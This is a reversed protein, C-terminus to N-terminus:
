RTLEGLLAVLPGTAAMIQERAVPHWEDGLVHPDPIDDPHPTETRRRRRGAMGPEVPVPAMGRAADLEAVLWETRGVTPLPAVFRRPDGEPYQGPARAAAVMGASLLWQSLRGAQKITFTRQRAQPDIEVVGAQHERAATLVLDAWEVAEPSLPASRHSPVTCGPAGVVARTGASASAVGPVAAQRLLGAALPSRCINATCVYLVKM